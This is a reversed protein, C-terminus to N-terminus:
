WTRGRSQVWDDMRVKVIEVGEHELILNPVQFFQMGLARLHAFFKASNAEYFKIAEGDGFVRDDKPWPLSLDLLVLKGDVIVLVFM